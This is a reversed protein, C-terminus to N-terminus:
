ESGAGMPDDTPLLLLAIEHIDMLILGVLTSLYPIRMPIRLATSVAPYRAFMFKAYLVTSIFLVALTLFQSIRIVIKLAKEPNKAKSQLITDVLRVDIHDGAQTVYGMGIFAIWLFLYRALEDSWPTAIYLWYRCVVAILIAVVLVASGLVMIFGEVKMLASMCKRLYTTFNSKKSM